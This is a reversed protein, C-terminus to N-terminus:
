VQLHSSVRSCTSLTDFAFPHMQRATLWCAVDALFQNQTEPAETSIRHALAASMVLNDSAHNRQSRLLCTKIPDNYWPVMMTEHYPIM